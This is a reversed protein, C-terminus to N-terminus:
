EPGVKEALRIVTRYLARRSVSWNGPIADKDLVFRLTHLDQQAETQEPEATTASYCDRRIGGLAEPNVHFWESYEQIIEKGCHKCIMSARGEPFLGLDYRIGTEELEKSIRM